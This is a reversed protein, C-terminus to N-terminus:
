RLLARNSSHERKQSSTLRHDIKRSAAYHHFSASPAPTTVGWRFRFGPVLHRTAAPPCPPPRPCHSPQPALSLGCERSGTWGGGHGGQVVGRALQCLHAAHLATNEPCQSFPAARRCAARRRRRASWGRVGWEGGRGWEGWGSGRSDTVRSAQSISSSVAASWRAGCRRLGFTGTDAAARRASPTSAQFSSGSPGAPSSLSCAM